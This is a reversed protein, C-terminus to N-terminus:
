LYTMESNALLQVTSRHLPCCFKVFVMDSNHFPHVIEKEIVALEILMLFNKRALYATGQAASGKRIFSAM